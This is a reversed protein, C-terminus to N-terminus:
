KDKGKKVFVANTVQLVNLVVKEKLKWTKLSKSMRGFLDIQEFSKSIRGFSSKKLKTAETRRRVRLIPINM